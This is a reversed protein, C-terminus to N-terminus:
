EAEGEKEFTIDTVYFDNLCHPCIMHVAKTYYIIVDMAKAWNCPGKLCCMLLNRDEECRKPDGCAPLESRIIEIAENKTM